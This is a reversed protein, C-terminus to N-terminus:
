MKLIPTVDSSDDDRLTDRLEKRYRKVTRESISHRKALVEASEGSRAIMRKWELTDREPEVGPPLAAGVHWFEVAAAADDRIARLAVLRRLPTRFREAQAV